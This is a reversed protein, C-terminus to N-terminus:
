PSLFMENQQKWKVKEPISSGKLEQYTLSKNTVELVQSIQWLLAGM